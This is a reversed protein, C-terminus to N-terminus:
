RQVLFETFYIEQCKIEPVRENIAKLMDAKLKEKGDPTVLDDVSHTGLVTLITDRLKGTSPAAKDGEKLEVGLGLDIGVRLYGTDAGQLNVVFSELHLVSKVDTAASKTEEAAPAAKSRRLLFGGAALGGAVAVAMIILPLKSKPKAPPKAAPTAEAAM